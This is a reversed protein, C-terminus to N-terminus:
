PTNVVANLHSVQGWARSLRENADTIPQVFNDWTPAVTDERVSAVLTRNEILLQAVASTIHETRIDEFRPLGSFNLLPNM